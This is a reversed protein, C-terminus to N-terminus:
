STVGIKIQLNETIKIVQTALKSVAGTRLRLGQKAEAVKEKGHMLKDRRGYCTLIYDWGGKSSSVNFHEIYMKHVKKLVDPKSDPRSRSAIIKRAVSAIEEKRGESKWIEYVEVEDLLKSMLREIRACFTVFVMEFMLRDLEEFDASSVRRLGEKKFGSEALAKSVASSSKYLELAREAENASFHLEELLEKFCFYKPLAKAM